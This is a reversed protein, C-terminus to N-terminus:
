SVVPAALLEMRTESLTPLPVQDVETDPDNIVASEKSKSLNASLIVRSADVSIAVAPNLKVVDPVPATANLLVPPNVTALAAVKEDVMLVLVKLEVVSRKVPDPLTAIPADTDPAM